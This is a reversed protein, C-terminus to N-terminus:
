DVPIYGFHIKRKSPIRRFGLRDLTKDYKYSKMVVRRRAARCAQEIDDRRVKEFNAFDRLPNMETSTSIETDFMPDFYVVDYSNDGATKLYDRYNANIIDIRSCVPNWVTGSHGSYSRMGLRVIESVAQESELGTVTGGEGVAHSAVLADSALGLTCDLVSEGQKLDMARVLYDTKGLDFQAIRTKALSPHFFLRNGKDPGYLVPGDKGIVFTTQRFDVERREVFEWGLRDALERAEKKQEDTYHVSTTVVM